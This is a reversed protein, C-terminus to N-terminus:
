VRRIEVVTTLRRGKRRGLFYALLIVLVGGVAAATVLKQRADAVKGAAGGQLNAFKAELDARSIRQTATM